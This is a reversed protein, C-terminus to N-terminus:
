VFHFPNKFQLPEYTERKFLEKKTNYSRYTRDGLKWCALALAIVCDDHEGPPASYIINKSASEYFGFIELESILAPINPFSIQRRDIMMSLKRILNNKQTIFNVPEVSLGLDRLKQYIPDGMTSADMIIHANYRRALAEIRSIQLEWDIEKFRDFAVLHNNESDMVILVSFDHKRALDVGMYYFHGSKPPELEGEICRDIKRFVQGSSELFDALIEQEYEMQPMDKALKDIEKPDLLDNDYSTFRWSKYERENPDQGKLYLKYFWNRRKPTGIFIAKGKKDMLAPRLSEEWALPDIRASEDCVLFDLGTGVLNRPNDASKAEVVTGLHTVIKQKGRTNFIKKILPSLQRRCLYVVANWVNETLDYTPAVIWVKKNPLHLYHVIGVKPDQAVFTTKGARRGAAIIKFRVDSQRVISQWKNPKYGILKCVKKEDFSFKKM